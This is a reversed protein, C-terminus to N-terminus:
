FVNGQCGMEAASISAGRKYLMGIAAATLLFEAIDHNRQEPTPCIFDLYYKLVAPIVGSAGNTPSTVVRGGSANEENVALAYVSIWDLAPLSRSPRLPASETIVNTKKLAVGNTQGLTYDQLGKMLKQYIGPARRKVRLGGPLFGEEANIGNKISM